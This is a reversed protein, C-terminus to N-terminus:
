GFGQWEKARFGLENYSFRCASATAEIKFSPEIESGYGRGLDAM